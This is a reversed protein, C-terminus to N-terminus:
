FADLHQYGRIKQPYGQQFQTYFEAL